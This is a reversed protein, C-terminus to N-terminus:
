APEVKATFLYGGGRVTKILRPNKPDSEIKRRLRSLQVDISRDFPGAERGKTLDLLQDRNLVRQPHQLFVMLLEFEGSTLAVEQGNRDRLERQDPQLRFGDFQIAGMAPPAENAAAPPSQTRRLVAKIRALLERPNFPKALYDDAGLELGVIRDTDDGAATLMIIPIASQKRLRRCISFGDEGPMMIDLILLDYHRESLVRDVERGDAATDVGFGHKGLFRALLERIDRDDDVVLLRAQTDTM